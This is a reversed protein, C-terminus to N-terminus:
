GAMESMITFAFGDPDVLDFARPGWPMDAPESALTGGRATIGAAIEDVDQTTELYFRMGLGKVRDAGKAGDDQGILIHQTGAALTYGRVVGEHEHASDVHFGVVDRYWALSAQLDRVTISPALGRLRLTEPQSRAAKDPANM